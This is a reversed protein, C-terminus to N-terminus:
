LAPTIVFSNCLQENNIVGTGIVFSTRNTHSHRSPTHTNNIVATGTVFSNAPNNIVDPFTSRTAIHRMINSTAHHLYSTRELIEAAPLMKNLLVKVVTDAFSVLYPM